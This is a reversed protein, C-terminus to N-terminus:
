QTLLRQEAQAILKMEGELKAMTRQAENVVTVINFVPRNSGEMDRGKDIGIAGITMLQLANMKDLKDDTIFDMSRGSISYVRAILAKKFTEVDEPNTPIRKAIEVVTTPSIDLSKAIKRYPFNQALLGHVAVQKDHPIRELTIPM